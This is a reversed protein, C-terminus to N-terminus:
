IENYIIEASFPDGLKPGNVICIMFFSLIFVGSITPIAAKCIFIRNRIKNCYATEKDNQGSTRVASNGVKVSKFKATEKSNIMENAVLTIFVVMPMVLGHLLWIDILKLSSVQPLLEHVSNYLNYTVLNSTLAVVILAEFYTENIFLTVEAALVLCISPIFLSFWFPGSHRELHIVLNLKDGNNEIKGGTIIHKNLTRTLNLRLGWPIPQIQDKELFPVEM